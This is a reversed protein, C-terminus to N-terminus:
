AYILINFGSFVYKTNLMENIEKETKPPMKGGDVLRHHREKKKMQEEEDSEPEKQTQNNELIPNFVREVIRERL